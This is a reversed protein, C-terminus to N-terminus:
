SATKIDIHGTVAAAILASRREKLHAITRETALRLVDLKANKANVFTVIEEQESLPPVPLWLNRVSDQGINQMSGSTGTADREFEHRGAPCGLFIVLYRRLLSSDNVGLRYLKDCLLLRPRVDGVLVASGLLAKTNARSLLVDGQRVEYQTLPKTNTNDPLRKNESPDFQGGNVCGTKLVGWEAPEAPTNDCVPSWGQEIWELHFKLRQVAWHKPIKGLWPIGSDRLPVHPDLGRTVARTILAQRKEALLELLREKAAILADIRATERDLYDAIARQQSAPPEPIDLSKLEDTNLEMFTSGGGLAQLLDAQVSLWYYYYRSDQDRQPTLLFCGQNSCAPEDLVAVKGIPARKTLVLSGRPVTAAGCSEYGAPTLKRRTDELWYGHLASLDEPTVWLINGDWYEANGSQPTAGSVVTFVYRLQKEVAVTVAGDGAPAAIYGEGNEEPM